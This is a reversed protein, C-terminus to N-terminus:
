LLAARAAPEASSPRVGGVGQWLRKGWPAIALLFNTTSKGAFRGPGRQFRLTPLHCGEVRDVAPATRVSERAM